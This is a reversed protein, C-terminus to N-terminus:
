SRVEGPAATAMEWDYDVQQERFLHGHTVLIPHGERVTTVGRVFTQPAGNVDCSFSDTPVYVTRGVPTQTKAM